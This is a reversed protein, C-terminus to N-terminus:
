HRIMNSIQAQATETLEEVSRRPFVGIYRRMRPDGDRYSYVAIEDRDPLYQLAQRPVSVAPRSMWEQLDIMEMMDQCYVALFHGYEAFRFSSPGVYRQETYSMQVEHLVEGQISINQLIGGPYCLVLTNDNLWHMAWVSRGAFPIRSQIKGQVDSILVAGSGSLACLTGQTNWIGPLNGATSDEIIQVSGDEERILVSRVEHGPESVKAWLMGQGSISLASLDGAYSGDLLTQGPSLQVDIVTEEGTFIDLCRIVDPEEYGHYYLRNDHLIVNALVAYQAELMERKTRVPDDEGYLDAYIQLIGADYYYDRMHLPIRATIEGTSITQLIANMDGTDTRIHLFVAHDEYQGLLVLADEDDYNVTYIQKRSVTDYGNLVTGTRVALYPGYVLSQDPIETKGDGEYLSLQHDYFNEYVMVNGDKLVYYRDNQVMPKTDTIMATIDQPFIQEMFIEGTDMHVITDKGGATILHIYSGPTEAICVPSETIQRDTHVSGNVPDILCLHDGATVLLYKTSEATIMRMNRLHDIATYRIETQWLLESDKTYAQIVRSADRLYATGDSAAFSENEESDYAIILIGDDILLFDQVHSLTDPIYRFHGSEFDFIGFTNIGNEQRLMVAIGAGDESWRMDRIYGETNEPLPFSAVPSLDESRMVQVAYSDGCAIYEGNPSEQLFNYLQYKMPMEALLTGDTDYARVTGEAATLIRNDQTLIVDTDASHLPLSACKKGDGTEYVHLIGTQDMVILYRGDSSLRMERIDEDLDYCRTEATQYPTQYAYVANSLAQLAEGIVPRGLEASPLAEAAYRMAAYRDRSAFAQVSQEALNGSQAILTRTYHERITHNSYLLYSIAGASLVALVAFIGLMRKRRYQNERMILEDYGCGILASVLRPLETRNAKRLDGRYDCALPEGVTEVTEMSGDDRIVTETKQRLIAPFVGPPEGESLVTLIHSREHTKLFEEIEHLCWASELYAPSCIVILYDSAALARDIVRSLDESIVLEDQDRFVRGIKQMGYKQQLASPIRFRELRKQIEAAVATDRETHRYSIFAKYHIDSM